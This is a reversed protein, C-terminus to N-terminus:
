RAGCQSLPDRLADPSRPTVLHSDDPVLPLIVIVSASM